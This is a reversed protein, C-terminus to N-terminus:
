CPAAAEQVPQAPRAKRPVEVEMTRTAGHCQGEILCVGRRTHRVIKAREVPRDCESCHPWLNSPVAVGEGYV